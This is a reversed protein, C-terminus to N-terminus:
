GVYESFPISGFFRKMSWYRMYRKLERDSWGPAVYSNRKKADLPQYRMPNTYGVLGGATELRYLADAPTDKYGILIYVRIKSKPVGSSILTSVASRFSNETRTDDWALRVAYLDLESIRQAHEKEILRADLGQNFDVRRVGASKLRDIVNSFHKWSAALLNNDCITPAPRWEDLEVLGGELVPVACFQCNRICGRTTFTADQNHHPLADVTGGVEAVGDWMQPGLTVAPGGVRVHYGSSKYWVARQYAQQLQWSFVASVYATSGDTWTKLGSGWM